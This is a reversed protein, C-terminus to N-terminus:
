MFPQHLDHELVSIIFSELNHLFIRNEIRGQVTLVASTRQSGTDCSYVGTDAGQLKYIVLEVTSGDQRLRYKSSSSVVEDGHRWVM